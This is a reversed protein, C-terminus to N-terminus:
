SIGRYHIIQPSAIRSYNNGLLIAIGDLRLETFHRRYNRHEALWLGLLRKLRAVKQPTFAEAPHGYATSTRTKVELGVLCEGDLAVIDLEGRNRREGSVRIKGRSARWNRDLIVYGQTILQAVALDEGTRGVENKNM